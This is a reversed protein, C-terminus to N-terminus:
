IATQNGRVFKSVNQKWILLNETKLCTDLSVM